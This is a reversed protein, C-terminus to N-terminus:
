KNLVEVQLGELVDLSKKHLPHDFSDTALADVVVHANPLASKVIVANSIVCINSVLGCLEVVEYDKNKLYLGLDLSPFTNKEFVEDEPSMLAKVDSQIEHGPTGKVCHKVPLNEGEETNLYNEDHTDMTFIIDDSSARYAKIKNIITDKIKPATEFGLAGNIFDNQYDVVILCKKM